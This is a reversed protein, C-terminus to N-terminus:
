KKVKVESIYSSDFDSIGKISGLWYEAENKNTYPGVRVRYTTKGSVEKTFIEAKIYRAQLADRAKEANLKGSFSGTQIWYETVTTTAVPKAVPKVAAQASSSSASSVKVETKPSSAAKNTITTESTKTGKSGTENINAAADSALGAEKGLESSAGANSGVKNGSLIDPLVKSGESPTTESESKKTLGTVDVLGYRGTTDGNVITVNINNPSSVLSTDLGPTSDPKRVWGDPDIATPNVSSLASSAQNSTPTITSVQRLVPGTSKSPFYLVLAFGFIVLLFATVALIVWLIKKQEM